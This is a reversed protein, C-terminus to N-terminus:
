ELTFSSDIVERESKLPTDCIKEVGRCVAKMYYDLYPLEMAQFIDREICHLLKPETKSGRTIMETYFM